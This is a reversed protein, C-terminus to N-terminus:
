HVCRGKSIPSHRSPTLAPGTPCPEFGLGPRDGVGGLTERVGYYTFTFYDLESQGPLTDCRKSVGYNYFINFIM